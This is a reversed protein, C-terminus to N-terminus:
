VTLTPLLSVVLDVADHLRDRVEESLPSGVEFSRGQVAVLTLRPPLRGTARALEVAEAVGLGHSGLARPDHRLPARGVRWVHVRGPEGQPATADVVVVDDHSGLHELLALPEEHEVVEVGPIALEAVLAAVEPGVGDDGRDRNGVGVVLASM